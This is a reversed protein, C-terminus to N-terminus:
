VLDDEDEALRPDLFLWLDEVPGRDNLTQLCPEHPMWEEPRALVQDADTLAAQGIDGEGERMGEENPLFASPSRYDDPLLTPLFLNRVSAAHTNHAAQMNDSAVEMAPPPLIDFDIEAGAGPHNDNAIETVPSPVLYFHGEVADPYADYIRPGYSLDIGGQNNNAPKEQWDGQAEPEDAPGPQGPAPLLTAALGADEYILPIMLFRRPNLWDNLSDLVHTLESLRRDGSTLRRQLFTTMLQRIVEPGLDAAWRMGGADCVSQWFEDQASPDRELIYLREHMARAVETFLHIAESRNNNSLATTLATLIRGDM